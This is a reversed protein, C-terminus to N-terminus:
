ANLCFSALYTLSNQPKKKKKESYYLKSSECSCFFFNFFFTCLISGGKCPPAWWSWVWHIVSETESERVRSFGKPDTLSDAVFLRGKRNFEMMYFFFSLSFFSWM